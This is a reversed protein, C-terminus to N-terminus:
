QGDTGPRPNIDAVLVNGQSDVVIGSGPHALASFSVLALLLTLLLAKM